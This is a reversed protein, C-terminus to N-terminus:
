AIKKKRLKEEIPEPTILVVFKEKKEDIPMRYAKLGEKKAKRLLWASQGKTLKEIKAYKKEERVTRLIEAYLSIRGRPKVKETYEKILKEAEEKGIYEVSM